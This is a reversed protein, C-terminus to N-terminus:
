KSELKKTIFIKSSNLDKAILPLTISKATQTTIPHAKQFITDDRTASIMVGVTQTRAHHIFKVVRHYVIELM